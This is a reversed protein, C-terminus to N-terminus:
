DADVTETILGAKIFEKLISQNPWNTVKSQQLKELLSFSKSLVLNPDGAKTFESRLLKTLAAQSLWVLDWKMASAFL